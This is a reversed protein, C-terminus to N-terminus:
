NTWKGDSSILVPLEDMMYQTKGIVGWMRTGTAERWKKSMMEGTHCGWSRIEANRAFINRHIGALQDQHLFSKSASDVNSSYDFMFCAKNSHGFYEFFAVKVQDRPKGDNLYNIVDDGNRFYVLNLHYKDRM